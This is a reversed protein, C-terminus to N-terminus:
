LAGGLKYYTVESYYSDYPESLNNTVRKSRVPTSSVLSHMASLAALREEVIRANGASIVAKRLLRQRPRATM